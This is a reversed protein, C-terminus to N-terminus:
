HVRRRLGAAGILVLSGVVFGISPVENDELAQQVPDETGNGVTIQGVMGLQAHPECVYYHVKDNETFTHRYDVTMAPEGSSFGFNINTLNMTSDYEGELELVNHAMSADKWQWCVTEGAKISLKVPDFAMGDASLGVVYDCDPQPEAKAFTIKVPGSGTMVGEDDVDCNDCSIFEYGELMEIKLTWVQEDEFPIYAEHTDLSNDVGEFSIKFEFSCSLPHDENDSVSGLLHPDDASPRCNDGADQPDQIGAIGDLMAPNDDSDNDDHDGHDDHGDEEPYGWDDDGDECSGDVDICYCPENNPCMPQVDPGEPCVIGGMQSAYDDGDNSCYFIMDDDHDDHHGDPRGGTVYHDNSASNEYDPSQGFDDTCFYMTSNMGNGHAECYYWWDDFGNTGDDNDTCYWRMDGDQLSSDGEWECYNWQSWYVDHHDDEHAEGHDFFGGDVMAYLIDLVNDAATTANMDGDEYATMNEMVAFVLAFADMMDDCDIVNDDEDYCEPEYDPYEPYPMYIRDNGEVLTETGNDYSFYANHVKGDWESVTTGDSTQVMNMFLVHNYEDFVTVLTYNGPTLEVDMIARNCDEMSDPCESDDSYDASASGVLGSETDSPNFDEYLYISPNSGYCYDYEGDGDYDQCGTAYSVFTGAFGDEGVAFAREDYLVFNEFMNDDNLNRMESFDAMPHDYTVNGSMNMSTGDEMHMVHMYNGTECEMVEDYSYCPGMTVLTYTDGAVLDADLYNNCEVDTKNDDAWGCNGMESKMFAEHDPTLETGISDGTFEGSLLYINGYWYNYDNHYEDEGDNCNWIGNNVQNIWVKTGDHCDFWNVEEGVCDSDNWEQCDDSTDNPTNSDYWQEDAGDDCDGSGDNVHYFPIENGNGCIFNSSVIYDMLFHSTIKVNGGMEPTFTYLDYKGQDRDNSPGGDTGDDNDDDNFMSQIANNSMFEEATIDGDEYAFMAYFFNGDDDHSDCANPNDNCYDYMMRQCSMGAMDNDLCDEMMDCEDDTLGPPCNWDDHDGHGGHDDDDGRMLFQEYCDQTIEDGSGGMMDACFQALDERFNNSEDVPYDGEVTVLWDGLSEMKIHVRLNEIDWNDDGRDDGDNPGSNASVWMLGAENCAEPTTISFDIEHTDIDYCVMMSEPRDDPSTVDSVFRQYENEDIVGDDGSYQDFIGRCQDESQDEPCITMLENFEITGNGNEDLDSFSPLSHDNHDGNDEDHDHEEGNHDEASVNYAPIAVFSSMVMMFFVALAALRGINM